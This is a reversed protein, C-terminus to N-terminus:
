PAAREALAASLLFRELNSKPDQTVPARFTANRFLKSDEVVRVLQSSAPSQGAFQVSGEEVQVQTIWTDDPMLRTLEALVEVLMPHKQRREVLFREEALLRDLEQRLRDRAQADARATAIEHHLRALGDQQRHVPLYVAVAALAVGGAVLFRNVHRRVSPAPAASAPLLDFGDDGSPALRAPAIGWLAAQRLARDVAPRTAVALDVTLRQADPDRAVIRGDFHVEDAKFPTHRDMEFGLVERLNEEAALPLHVIRRLVEGAPLRLTVASRNLGHQKLFRAVVGAEAPLRVAEGGQASHVFIEAGAPELDVAGHRIHLWRPLLFSLEAFWWGFFRTLDGRLRSPVSDM